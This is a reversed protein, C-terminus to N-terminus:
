PNALGTIAEQKYYCIIRIYQIIIKQETKKDEKFIKAM